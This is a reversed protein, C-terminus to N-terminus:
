ALLGLWKGNVQCIAGYWGRTGYGMLCGEYQGGGFFVM